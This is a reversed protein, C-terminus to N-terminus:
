RKSKAPYLDSLSCKLCNALAAVESDSVCRVQAEIKALTGRTIDFGNVQCRASFDAQTLGHKIRLRRVAPGIINKPRKHEMKPAQRYWIFLYTKSRYRLM